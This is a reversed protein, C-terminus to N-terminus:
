NKRQNLLWQWVQPNAYTQTWSDHTAESYITLQAPSGMSKLKRVLSDSEELPVVTDRAGHFAWIPINQILPLRSEDFTVPVWRPDSKRKYRNPDGGGCIPVAAAFLSPYSTLMHWTGYGGMSLGTLYLRSHDIDPHVALVEDVLQKLTKSDWWWDEPCQPSIVVCQRLPSNPERELIAPPGHRTIKWIDSGREGAGHLFLVLPWGNKPARGKPEHLLYHLRMARHTGAAAQMQQPKQIRKSGSFFTSCGALLASLLCLAILVPKM